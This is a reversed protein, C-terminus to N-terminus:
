QAARWAEQAGDREPRRFYRAKNVGFDLDLGPGLPGEASSRAAITASLCRLGRKPHGRIAIIMARVKPTSIPLSTTRRTKARCSLGSGPSLDPGEQSVKRPWAFSLRHLTSRKRHSDTSSFDYPDQEHEILVRPSDYPEANM